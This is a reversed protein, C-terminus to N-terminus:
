FIKFFNFSCQEEYCEYGQQTRLMGNCKGARSSIVQAKLGRREEKEFSSWGRGGRLEGEGGGAGQGTGGWRYGHTLQMWASPAFYRPDGAINRGESTHAKM